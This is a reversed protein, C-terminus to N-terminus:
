MAYRVPARKRASRRLQVNTGLGRQRPSSRRGVPEDDSEEEPYVYDSADSEPGQNLAYFDAARTKRMWAVAMKMEQMKEQLKIRGEETFDNSTHMFFAGAEEFVASAAEAAQRLAPKPVAVADGEYHSTSQIDKARIIHEFLKLATGRARKEHFTQTIETASARSYWRGAKEAPNSVYIAM